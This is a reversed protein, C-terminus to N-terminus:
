RKGGPVPRIATEKDVEAKLEPDIFEVNAGGRLGAGIEQARRHILTAIIRDKIKDFAPAGRQRKDEVKILHWGFQSRVPLSVEGKPTKFAVEEFQPVMRGRAFYGLDGGDEKSGSDKSHQKAMATFDAGHAINEYLEKAKEETEVLIHRARVEEQAPTAAVQSDYFKRADAETVSSKVKAEFYADRMARRQWYRRREEFGQTSGLKDKEGAEAFLLNEIVYEVLVRRRQDAPLSGLDNGIEGEALRLDAETIEQGNVKAVVKDQARVELSILSMFLLAVTAVLGVATRNSRIVLVDKQSARGILGGLARLRTTARQRHQALRLRLRTDPIPCMLVWELRLLNRDLRAAAGHREGDCSRPARLVRGTANVHSLGTRIEEGMRYSRIARPAGPSQDIIM